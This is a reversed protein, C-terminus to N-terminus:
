LYLVTVLLKEVVKQVLHKLAGKVAVQVLEGNERVVHPWFLNTRPLKNCEISAIRVKRKMGHQLVYNEKRNKFSHANLSQTINM